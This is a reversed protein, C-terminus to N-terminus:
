LYDILDVKPKFVECLTEFEYLNLSCRVRKQLVVRVTIFGILEASGNDPDIAGLSAIAGM